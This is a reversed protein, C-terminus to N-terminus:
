KETCTQVSEQVVARTALGGEVTFVGMLGFHDTAFPLEGLKELEKVVREEEVKVDVGVRELSSVHLDGWFVIKDLRKPGFRSKVSQVGWTVGEGDDEVGGLELYADRFGNDQPESRDRRQNANCDGAVIGAVVRSNTGEDPRPQALDALGKWQIPRMTGSMSDLHVNCLRFISGTAEGASLRVDVVLADRKFESVFPLRSVQEIQLRRDVLAVTGYSAGDWNGTDVDTMHFLDRVWDATQLQTLDNAHKESDPTGSESEQMEQLFIVIASTSPITTLVSSLHTLAASM